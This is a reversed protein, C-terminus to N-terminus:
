SIEYPIPIPMIELTITLTQAPLTFVTEMTVQIIAANKRAVNM